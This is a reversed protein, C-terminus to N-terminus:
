SIISRNLIREGVILITALVIGILAVLGGYKADKNLKGSSPITSAVNNIPASTHKQTSSTPTPTATTVSQPSGITTRNIFYNYAYAKKSNPVIMSATIPTTSQGGGMGAQSVTTPTQLNGTWAGNVNIILIGLWGSLTIKDNILNLIDLNSLASGTTVSGGSNNIVLSNGSSSAANLYNNIIENNASTLSPLIDAETTDYGLATATTGVPENTIYGQWVGAVNIFVILLNDGTIQKNVISYSNLNTNATGSSVIPSTPSVVTMAQGSQASLNTTNNVIGNSSTTPAPSVASTATVPGDILSSPIVLNGTLNGDVNVTTIFTQSDSIQDNVQNIINGQAAADGTTTTGDGLNDVVTTNGSNASVNLTSNIVGSGPINNETTTSTRSNTAPALNTTPNLTVDGSTTGTLNTTATQLSNSSIATDSGVSNIVNATSYSHHTKTHENTTVEDNNPSGNSQNTTTNVAPEGSSPPNNIGSNASGDTNQNTVNTSTQGGAHRSPSLQAAYTTTNLLASSFCLGSIITLFILYSKIHRM